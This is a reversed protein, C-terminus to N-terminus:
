SVYQNCIASYKKCKPLRGKLRKIKQIFTELSNQSSVKHFHFKNHIHSFVLRASCIKRNIFKQTFSATGVESTHSNTQIKM